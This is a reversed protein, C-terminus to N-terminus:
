ALNFVDVNYVIQTFGRAPTYAVSIGSYLGQAYDNPNEVSYTSLPEANVVVQGTYAGAQLNASFTPADLKLVVLQGVACGFAIADKMVGVETPQLQDVGAQTYILPAAPNNSGNIVAAATRLDSNIAVWDVAYWQSADAGDMTTGWFLVATSIGGEAGTGVINIKATKLTTFLASNGATPWPTVGFLFRFAFPTLKASSSPNQAAWSYFAAALSFENVGVGTSVNTSALLNGLATEVGLASPVEYVLTSGTTGIVAQHWGNYGSPAVGSIQFWEGVAVGHATTTTATVFGSSYSIATLANQPWAGTAPTEILVVADKMQATFNTYNALTATTFFYTRADPSEYNGLFTWYASSDAWYRPVLYAYFYGSAGATYASNPNAALYATLATVGDSANGPGLELVYVGSSSGQAFFTTNMASLEAVDELTYVITGTAPTTTGSPVPYTFTSAGTVTVTFTGNYATITSGAITVPLTDGTTLGHPNTTTVTATGGTQTISTVAQSGSIIAALDASTALFKYTGPVLSTAGQSVFAVTRQLTAPASAAQVSTKVKVISPM